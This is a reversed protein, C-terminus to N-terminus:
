HPKQIKLTKIKSSLTSPPLGLLSAAGNKGAVKWGTSELARIINKREMNNLEESTFVHFEHDLGTRETVLPKEHKEPYPLSLDLNLSPGASTIVAREIINELERINGPWHYSRLRARNEQSLQLGAKGIQRMYKDLFTEALIIIDEDRERLPPLTIPFVNLRYYLDQRFKGEKVEDELDRNTAAIIRVDIRRTQQSGVPEFEGEQLVRLLKAQLDLPLEGVEDLFLTGKDALAFRGERRQTAGTFAGKEHGFFESEILSAPIAACNVKILPKNKRNSLNHISRAFLEKGTGTEGLILVTTDTATVQETQKLVNKLADSVGVIHDFNHISKVEEKLYEAQASLSNIKRDAELRENIDRLILTFYREGRIEFQSLTAEAQFVADGASIAKLGGPIWFGRKEGSGNSMGDLLKELKECSQNTLFEGINQGTLENMTCGFTKEVARNCGTVNLSRDLEIICDMANGILGALKEERERIDEEARIRQLEASARSAFIKFVAEKKADGPLPKSDMVALHGLIEGETDTFPIGMYSVAHYQKLDPDNPFIEIIKEPYHVLCKENIVPECPTGTIDYEYHDVFDRNIWFALARLRRKERLYETVWAGDTDLALALNKVLQRFFERGTHASTGEFIRKLAEDERNEKM